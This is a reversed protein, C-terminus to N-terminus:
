EAVLEPVGLVVRWSRDERVMPVDIDNPEFRVTVTASEGDEAISERFDASHMPATESRNPYAALMESPALERGGLATATRARATLRDRSEEDLLEFAQELAEIREPGTARQAEAMSEFFLRLAGSPTEETPPGSCAVVFSLLLWGLWRM